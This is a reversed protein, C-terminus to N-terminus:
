SSERRTGQDREAAALRARHYDIREKLERMHPDTAAWRETRERAREFVAEMLVTVDREEMGYLAWQLEAGCSTWLPRARGPGAEEAAGEAVAEM